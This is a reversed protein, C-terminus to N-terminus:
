SVEEMDEDDEDEDEDDDGADEMKIESGGLGPLGSPGPELKAGDKFNEKLLDISERTLKSVIQDKWDFHRGYYVAKSKDLQIKLCVEDDKKAEKKEEHNAEIGIVRGIEVFNRSPVCLPTGLKVIGEVVRVGILIPDKQRFVSEEDIIKVICPFVASGSAAARREARIREMHKTMQDFLHYIIDAAFVRVGLDEALKRVEPSIKVDFALVTAYEIKFELM